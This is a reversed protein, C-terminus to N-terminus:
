VEIDCKSRDGTGALEAKFDYLLPQDRWYKDLRTKFTNVSEAHVIKNPLSNWTDITRATFSYKGLDYRFSKNLLKYQNGRTDVRNNFQLMTSCSADYKQHIIKFIEIMDGRIRRYKLTHLDLEKLRETYSLNKLQIVISLRHRFNIAFHDSLKCWGSQQFDRRFNWERQCFAQIKGTM